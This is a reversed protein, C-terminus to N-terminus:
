CIQTRVVGQNSELKSQLHHVIRFLHDLIVRNCLSCVLVKTAAKADANALNSGKTLTMGLTM